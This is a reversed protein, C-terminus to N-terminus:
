IRIFTGVLEDDDCETVKVGLPLGNKDTVVLGEVQLGTGSMRLEITPLYVPTLTPMESRIISWEYSTDTGFEESDVCSAEHETCREIYAIVAETFNEAASLEPFEFIVAGQEVTENVATQSEVLTWTLDIAEAGVGDREINRIETTMSNEKTQQISRNLQKRTRRYVNSYAPGYDTLSYFRIWGAIREDVSGPANTRVDAHADDIAQNTAELQHKFQKVIPMELDTWDPCKKELAAVSHSRWDDLSNDYCHSDKKNNDSM